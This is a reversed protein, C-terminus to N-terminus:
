PITPDDKKAYIFTIIFGLPFIILLSVLFWLWFVHGRRTALYGALAAQGVYLVVTVLIFVMVFAGESM